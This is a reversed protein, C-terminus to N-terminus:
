AQVVEPGGAFRRETRRAWGLGALLLILGGASMALALTLHHPWYSFTVTHTGAAPIRVGKFAHNVRFYEAPAGNVTVRFDDPYYGETLIAYGPGRSTVQFTTTNATLQYNAAPSVVRDALQNYPVLPLGPATNREVSAFPRRDGGSVQRAFEALNSYGALRDTFFARPWATPSEYVDLDHAALFRLGPIARPTAAHSALYFRANMLDQVPLQPALNDENWTRGDWWRVKAAGGAVALDDFYPSRLPDVGYIGEWGLMQNFGSFVNLGIGTPRSPEALRRQVDAAAPSPAHFDVRIAPNYVYADFPTALYQGHRWLLLFAAAGVCAIRLGRLQPRPALSLGVLGVLVGILLLPVYGRFFPSFAAATTNAFYAWGLLGIGVLIGAGRLIRSRGDAPRVLALLGPGALITTLVLLACSFVNHTHRLNAIFPLKLIVSPPILGFTFALPVLAAALLALVRRNGVLERWGALLGLLGVLLVMNGSPALHLEGPRLQRYLLDDFFGAFSWWPLTSVGPASDTYSQKLTDLFLWWLPATLLLFGIGVGVMAALKRGREAWPSDGALLALLGGFNLCLMLMYAEKIAGSTMMEWNALVWVAAAGAVAKWTRADGLRLWAVVIWPSFCLSFQAVHNARFAFFGIYGATAAVFAAIGPRRTLLLVALGIGLGYLWHALLFKADWAWAASRGLMPILNLVEGFMSQGQGLLPVGALTYRNWLPLEGDELLARTQLQPYQLHSLLMAAVDSGKADELTTSQYGPLTPFHDYYLYSGVDPSVFSRGFLLIPHCQIAVGLGAAAAVALWPRRQAWAALQALRPGTSWRSGFLALLAFGLFLPAAFPFMALFQLKWTVALRLPNALPLELIPDFGGPEVEVRLVPGDAAASKIQQVPRFDAPGFRHIETGSRDVVRAGTIAVRGDQDTPDLRLGNVRGTPLPFRYTATGGGGAVALRTSDNENIGRGLDYFLQAQGARDTALGVEFFYGDQRDRATTEFPLCVAAAVLAALLTVAAVFRFSMSGPNRKRGASPALNKGPPATPVGPTRDARGLGLGLWVAGAALWALGAASLWLALTFHQPWYRFAITHAGPQTIRVAKFAHNVRFYPAPRGDVLVEFDDPYFTETLVAIGPRDAQISFTTTNPTLRYDTAPRVTRSALDSSFDAPREATTMAAFPRGDGSALLAAFQEVTEYPAIRDTFFARPWATPSEYVDLDHEGLLTLGPLNRGRSQRNALSYRVNLFDHARQLDAVSSEPTPHDWLWVKELRLASALQQYERNRLADVGYLSEWRLATNYSPFLNTEWGILRAPEGRRSALQQVAPSAAHIDARRGPTFAYHNYATTGYQAHRWLLLPLGVALALGVLHPRPRSLGAAAGAALAAAALGLSATYGLFFASPTTQRSAVFFVAALAAGLGLAGAFRPLWPGPSRNELADHLGCGAVVAVLVLLPCSFVNGVHLINQLFPVRVIVAAPVIGFAFALPVAAAILLAAAAKDRRLWQPRALSWLLVLLFFANLAPAVVQENGGNQRYFIDDFFGILHTLPLQDVRPVDYSTFSHRLATLFSMWFPATALGLGVAALSVLGLLKLRGSGRPRAALLVLGALNLCAILGASEKATGSTGVVFNAALLAGLWAVLSKRGDAQLLGVWAFLIWPSYGVSFNAPHIIRFTTFGIFAGAVAVLASPWMRRTLLWVTLGLGASFLWRTVLFRVDWAWAAGDAAITLFNFPDGFMSQGQGLLPEGTLSYRNWLPWEGRALADRQVMPYYLHQFLMAGVDSGMGDSFLRSDAGPLTPLEGYLMLSGNNPSVFSRGQFIVPHSQVAVALASLLLLSRRPRARLGAGLKELGPRLRGFVAPSGLCLGVLLVALGVRSPDRLRAPWSARLTLPEALPLDLVPDGGNPETEIRLTAGDIAFRAIQSAPRFDAPAFRRLVRGTRDVIRADQLSLTAARDIPDFRLSKFTGQAILYGYRVPKTGARLPQASSEEETTGRGDDWFFQTLGAESSTLTVEFLFFERSQGSTAIGPLMAAVAFLVALLVAFPDFWPQKV